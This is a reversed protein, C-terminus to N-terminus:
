AAVFGDVKWNPQMGDRTHKAIDRVAHMVTDRSDACVQLSIDGHLEVGLNDDPFEPMATLHAPERGALGYRHDFLGAGVGVTVTLGDAPLVPGLTDSDTPPSAVDTAPPPGGTTLFRIRDTLTRFLARLADRDPAIANCSLFTAAAQPPTLIGAQHEGEF